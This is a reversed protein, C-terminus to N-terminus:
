YNPASTQAGNYIRGGLATFYIIDDIEMNIDGFSIISGGQASLGAVNGNGDLLGANLRSGGDVVIAFSPSNDCTILDLSVVAGYNLKVYAGDVYLAGAGTLMGGNVIQVVSSTIIEIGNSLSCHCGDVRFSRVTVSQGGNMLTIPADFGRIIVDEPYYGGSISIVADKGNTDRPIVSLAKNITKYPAAATGTGATDSGTTADVYLYTDVRLKGNYLELINGEIRNMDTNRVGDAGTWDTKPTQWAM